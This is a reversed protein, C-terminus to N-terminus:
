QTIEKHIIIRPDPQEIFSKRYDIIQAFHDEIMGDDTFLEIRIASIPIKTDDNWSEKIGDFMEDEINLLLYNTRTKM